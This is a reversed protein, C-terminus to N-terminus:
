NNTRFDEVDEMLVSEDTLESMVFPDEDVIAAIADPPIVPPPVPPPPPPPTAAAVAADPFLDFFNSDTNVLNCTYYNSPSM